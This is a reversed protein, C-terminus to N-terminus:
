IIRVALLDAKARGSRVTSLRSPRVVVFCGLKVAELSAERSEKSRRDSKGISRRFEMILVITVSERSRM